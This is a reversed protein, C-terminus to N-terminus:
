QNYYNCINFADFLLIKTTFIWFYKKVDMKHQYYELFSSVSFTTKLIIPATIVKCSENNYFCLIEKNKLLVFYKFYFPLTCYSLEGLSGLGLVKM